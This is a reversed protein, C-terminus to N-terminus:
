LTFPSVVFVVSGDTRRDLEDTSCHLCSGTVSPSGAELQCFCVLVDSGSMFAEIVGRQDSSVSPFGLKIAASTIEDSDM